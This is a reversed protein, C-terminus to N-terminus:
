ACVLERWAGGDDPFFIDPDRRPPLTLSRGFSRASTFTAGAARRPLMSLSPLGGAAARLFFLPLTPLMRTPKWVFSSLCFVTAIGLNPESCSSMASVLAFPHFVIVLNKPQMRLIFEASLLTLVM